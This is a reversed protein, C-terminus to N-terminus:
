VDQAGVEGSGRERIVLRRRPTDRVRDMPHARLREVLRQEMESPRVLTLPRLPELPVRGPRAMRILM